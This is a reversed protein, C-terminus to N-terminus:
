GREGPDGAGGSDTTASSAVVQGAGAACIPDGTSAMCGSAFGSGTAWGTVSVRKGGAAAIKVEDWGKKLGAAAGISALASNSRRAASESIHGSGELAM